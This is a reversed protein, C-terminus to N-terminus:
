LDNFNMVANVRGGERTNPYIFFDSYLFIHRMM